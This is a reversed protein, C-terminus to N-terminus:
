RSPIINSEILRKTADMLQQNKAMDLTGVTGGTIFQVLQDLEAQTLARQMSAAYNTLFEAVDRDNIPEIQEELVVPDMSSRAPFPAGLLVLVLPMNPPGNALERAIPVVLEEYLGAHTGPLTHFDDVVLFHKDAKNQELAHCLWYAFKQGMFELNSQDALVFNTMDKNSLRLDRTIRLCAAEVSKTDALSIAAMRIGLGQAVHAILHRSWSKGSGSPGMISMGKFPSGPQIIQRLNERLKRRNIFPIVPATGVLLDQTLLDALDHLAGDVVGLDPGNLSSKLSRLLGPLRQMKVAYDFVDAAVATGQRRGRSLVSDDYELVFRTITSRSEATLRSLVGVLPERWKGIFAQMGHTPAATHSPALAPAVASSRTQYQRHLAANVDERFLDRLAEYFPVLSPTFPLHLREDIRSHALSIIEHQRGAALFIGREEKSLMNQADLWTTLETTTRVKLMDELLVDSALTLFQPHFAGLEAALERLVAPDKRLTHESTAVVAAELRSSPPALRGKRGKREWDLRELRRARLLASLSLMGDMEAQALRVAQAAMKGASPFQGQREHIFSALLALEVAVAKFDQHCADIGKKAVAAAQREKGAFLLARSELAYLPSGALRESRKGLLALAQEPQKDLLLRRVETATQQEWDAQGAQETDAAALSVNLKNALWLYHPSQLPLEDLTSRLLRGAEADWRPELTATAQGLRLRHYLEEARALSGKQQQWWKVANKHIQRAQPTLKGQRDGVMILRIDQRYRLVERGEPGSEREPDVLTIERRLKDFLTWAQGESLNGLKCPRALVHQVVEPTIIRVELGPLLLKDLDKDHLHTVIRSILQKQRVEERLSALDKLGAEGQAQLVPAALRLTLPNGGLIAAASHVLEPDPAPSHHSRAQKALLQGLLVTATGPPLARLMLAQLPPQPLAYVQLSPSADSDAASPAPAQREQELKHQEVAPPPVRGSIIVRLHPQAATLRTALRLLREAVTTGLFQAEEFTDLWFIVRSEAQTLSSGLIEAFRRADEDDSTVGAAELRSQDPSRRLHQGEHVYRLLLSQLEPYSRLLQLAAQDLVSRPRDPAVLSHDMDVRVWIRGAAPADQDPGNDRIEWDLLARSILASKGMGGVGSIFLIRPEASDLHAEILKRERERGTFTDSSLRKLLARDRRREILRLLYVPDPLLLGPETDQLWASVTALATLEATEMQEPDFPPAMAIARNLVDQLPLNPLLDRNADQAELMAQASHLERLARTRPGTDLSRLKDDLDGNEEYPSHILDIQLSEWAAARDPLASQGVPQLKAPEFSVLVAAAQRLLQVADSAGSQSAAERELRFRALREAIAGDPYPQPLGGEAPPDETQPPPPDPTFSAVSTDTSEGKRPPTWYPEWEGSPEPAGAFMVGADVVRRDRALVHAPVAYSGAFGSTTFAIGMVHGNRVDLLPAGAMGVCAVASSEYHLAAVWRGYSLTQASGRAWGPVLRKVGGVGGLVAAELEAGKDQLMSSRVGAAPYGIKAIECNRLEETALLSLLLPKAELPMEALELLVMDWYPHVMRIKIIRLTNALDLLSSGRERGPSFVGARNPIFSLRGSGVGRVFVEAVSRSTMMLREGVIFGTGVHQARRGSDELHEVRGVSPIAASIRDRVPGGNFHQWPFPLNEFQRNAIFSVPFVLRQVAVELELAEAASIRDFEGDQLKRLVTREKDIFDDLGASELGSDFASAAALSEFSTVGLSGLLDRLGALRVHDVGPGAPQPFTDSPSGFPSSNM